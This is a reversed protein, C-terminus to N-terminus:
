RHGGLADVVRRLTTSDFDSRVRVVVGGPLVVELPDAASTKLQHPEAVVEVFTPPRLRLGTASPLPAKAGLRWKWYGLTHRNVGIKAAFEKATLGSDALGAM